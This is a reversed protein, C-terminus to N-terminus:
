KKKFKENRLDLLKLIDITTGGPRSGDLFKTLNTKLYKNIIKNSHDMIESRDDSQFEKVDQLESDVPGTSQQDNWKSVDQMDDLIDQNKMDRSLSLPPDYTRVYSCFSLALPLDDHEGEEAMVKGNKMVLGILELALRESKVLEPCDTVYNYLSEIMLPRSQSTTALGYKYKPDKLSITTKSKQKTVYINYFEDGKSLYECVQNGYSNNEPILLNNPYIKNVLSIIKCFDDVRLKAKFEAVQQFTEYDVIEISSNDEGSKPATDIGVLYFKKSDPKEWQWLEFNHLVIKSIPDSTCKNLIEITTSPLFSDESSIFEMELEQAIKWHVNGLLDCQTKYWLPDNAFEPIQKWYLKFPKFISDGGISSMWTTYYFRGKGVTKNPTSILLTFFPVGNDRATTQAKFLAPAVGTYAEDIKTIYATEDCILINLSKGRFLGSANSDDVQSAYLQSGNEMIFQQEARKTFEPRIWNPLSDILSLVKRCFDTSEPGSKSVIGIVANRYFCVVWCCLM